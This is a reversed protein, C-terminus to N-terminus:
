NAPARRIAIAGSIWVTIALVWICAIVKWHDPAILATSGTWLRERALEFPAALPSAVMLLAPAGPDSGAIRADTSFAAFLFAAAAPPVIALLALMIMTGARVHSDKPSRSITHFSWGLVGAVLVTWGVLVAALAGSVELPWAAMWPLSQPTIMLLIPITVVVADAGFARFPREPPEQSLRIMPWVIAVGAGIISIMVRAAPRYVESAMLGLAGVAGISMVSAALIFGLWIVAFPRPEARRHAWRDPAPTPSPEPKREATPAPNQQIVAAMMAPPVVIPLSSGAALDSAFDSPGPSALNPDQQGDHIPFESM